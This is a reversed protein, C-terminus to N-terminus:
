ICTFSPDIRIDPVWGNLKLRVLVFDEILPKTDVVPIWHVPLRRYLPGLKLLGLRAVKDASMVWMSIFVNETIALCKMQISMGKVAIVSLTERRIDYVYHKAAVRCGRHSPVNIPGLVCAPFNCRINKCERAFFTSCHLKGENSVPIVRGLILTINGSHLWKTILSNKMSKQACNCRM